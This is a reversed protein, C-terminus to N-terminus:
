TKRRGCGKCTPFGYAPHEYRHLEEITVTAFMKGAVPATRAGTTTASVCARPVNFWTAGREIAIEEAERQNDALVNLDITYRM